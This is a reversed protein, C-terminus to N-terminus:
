QTPAAGIAEAIPPASAPNASHFDHGLLAAVTAAIQSQHVPPSNKREGLAPTDPGLIAMWIHNPGGAVDKGM